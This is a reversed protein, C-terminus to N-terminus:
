FLAMRSIREIESVTLEITFRLNPTGHPFHSLDRFPASVQVHYQFPPTDQSIPLRPAQSACAPTDTSNQWVVKV